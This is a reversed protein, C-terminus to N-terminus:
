ICPMAFVSDRITYLFVNLSSTQLTVFCIPRNYFGKAKAPLSCTMRTNNRWEVLTRKRDVAQDRVSATDVYGAFLADARTNW